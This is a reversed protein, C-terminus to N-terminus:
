WATLVRAARAGAGVFAVVADAPVVLGGHTFVEVMDEGTYSHPRAYRAVLPEDILERTAPHRLAARRLTRPAEPWPEICRGAVAYVGAGSLRIIALAARGPPTALAVIPDSLM